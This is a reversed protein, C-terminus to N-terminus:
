SGCLLILAVLYVLQAVGTSLGIATLVWGAPLILAIYLIPLAILANRVRRWLAPDLPGPRGSHAGAPDRGFAFVGPLDLVRPGHVWGLMDPRTRDTWASGDWYRVQAAGSPCPYWGERM